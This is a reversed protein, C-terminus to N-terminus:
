QKVFETAQEFIIQKMDKLKIKYARKEKSLQARISKEPKGIQMSPSKPSINRSTGSILSYNSLRQSNLSMGLSM